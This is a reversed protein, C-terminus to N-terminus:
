GAAANSPSSEANARDAIEELLRNVQQGYLDLSHRSEVLRRAAKAMRAREAGSSRLARDLGDALALTDRPECLWGTEGDDILEPLGFVSTALVPTEWAMAELVTRPLSEVDSACVLLDALGYWRQVNPTVPILDFRDSSKATAMHEALMKSYPKDDGGVLVLRAKPHRAAILDFAQALPLQAKRPEVTGVCLIVQADEPIGSARRAAARDFRAREADIPALDLGYPLVRGRDERITSEFMRQTAEAEFLVLAADGLAAKARELIQPDPDGWLIALPFSEHISWVAPIGLRVALEAGPLALATATNVLVLEFGRGRSWAELEELRGLHSSLEDMPVPGAIHVPVGMRELEQRLSGDLASVVTPQVSGRELLKGILDMLYLQAGGLNLQHTYVLIPRGRGQPRPTRPPLPPLSAAAPEGTPLSITLSVPDLEHREGTTSVAAARLIADGELPPLSTLDFTLNFGAVQALPNDTFKVLDEREVGVRARGLLEEDLWLEVRATPASPFLAWGRVDLIETEILTGDCPADILGRPAEDFPGPQLFPMDPTAGRSWLRRMAAFRWRLGNLREAFTTV